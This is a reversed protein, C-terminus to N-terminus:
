QSASDDVKKAYNQSIKYLEIWYDSFLKQYKENEAVLVIANESVKSNKYSNEDLLDSSLTRQLENTGEILQLFKFTYEITVKNKILLATKRIEDIYKLYLRKDTLISEGLNNSNIRNIFKEILPLSDEINKVIKLHKSPSYSKADPIYPDSKAQSIFFLPFLCLYIIATTKRLLM